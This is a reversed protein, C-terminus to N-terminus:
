RRRDLQERYDQPSIQHPKREEPSLVGHAKAWSAYESAMKTAQEPHQKSLDLLETPDDVLNYLEWPEGRTAILKWGGERV